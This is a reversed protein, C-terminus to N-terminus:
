ISCINLCLNGSNWFDSYFAVAIYIERWISSMHMSLKSGEIHLVGASVAPLVGQHEAAVVVRRRSLQVPGQSRWGALETDPWPPSM